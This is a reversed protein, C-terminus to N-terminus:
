IKQIDEDNVVEEPFQDEDDYELFVKIVFLHDTETIFGEPMEDSVAAM